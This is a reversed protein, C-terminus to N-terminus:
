GQENLARLCANLSRPIESAKHEKPWFLLQLVIKGVPYPALQTRQAKKPKSADLNTAWENYCPVELIKSSLNVENQIQSFSIYSRAFSGDVGMISDLNKPSSISSTHSHRKPSGFLKEISFGKKKPSSPSATPPTEKSQGVKAKLTLIFELENGVVLEFEQYIPANKTLNMYATTVCHIGNDLTLTFYASANEPFQISLGKLALVKVFLRGRDFPDAETHLSTAATNTVSQTIADSPDIIMSRPRKTANQEEVSSTSESDILMSKGIKRPQIKVEKAKDIMPTETEVPPKIWRNYPRESNDTFDVEAKAYVVKTNQRMLYGRRQIEVVKDFERALDGMLDEEFDLNLMLGHATDKVRGDLNDDIKPELFKHQAHDGSVNRRTQALQSVDGPTLSPRTKLGSYAKITNRTKAVELEQKWSGNLYSESTLFDDLGLSNNEPSDFGLNLRYDDLKFSDLQKSLDKVSFEPSSKSDLIATENSSEISSVESDRKRRSVIEAEPLLKLQGSEKTKDENKYRSTPIQQYELNNEPRTVNITESETSGDDFEPHVDEDSSYESTTESDLEEIDYNAYQLHDSWSQIEKEEENSDSDASIEPLSQNHKFEKLRDDEYNGPGNYSDILDMADFSADSVCSAGSQRRDRANEFDNEIIESESNPLYNDSDEEVTGLRPSQAVAAIAKTPVAPLPRGRFPQLQPRPLARSGSPTRHIYTGATFQNEFKFKPSEHGDSQSEISSKELAQDHPADFELVQPPAMEFTVKKNRLSGSSSMISSRKGPSPSRPTESRDDSKFSGSSLTPSNVPSDAQHFISNRVKGTSSIELVEKFKYDEKLLPEKEKDQWFSMVSKTSLQEENEDKLEAAKLARRHEITSPSNRRPDNKPVDALPKNTTRAQKQRQPSIVLQMDDTSSVAQTTM